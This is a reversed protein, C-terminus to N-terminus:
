PKVPQLLSFPPVCASLKDQLSEWALMETCIIEIRSDASEAISYTSVIGNDANIVCAGSQTKVVAKSRIAPISHMWGLVQALDFVITPPYLWGCSYFGDASNEKRLIDCSGTQATLPFTLPFDLWPEPADTPTSASKPLTPAPPSHHTDSLWSLLLRGQTVWGTLAANNGTLSNSWQEFKRQDALSCRETKNAVLRDAVGAQRNFNDNFVYREDTLKLPDILTLVSQIDVLSAYYENQLIALIEDPHGLGSPEILLRAPKRALLMNLAIQMPLGNVCCMCGGPVEKVLVGEAQLIAGDIGIEGFENVLVAWRDTAPKISLLHRIATTKGVGLFGTIINVPIRNSSSM